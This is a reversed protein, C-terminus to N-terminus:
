EMETNSLQKNLIEKMRSYLSTLVHFESSNNGYKASAIDARLGIIKLDLFVSEWVEAEMIRM